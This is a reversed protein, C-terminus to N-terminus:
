LLGRLFTKDEDRNNLQLYIGGELAFMNLHRVPVEMWMQRIASGPDGRPGQVGDRSIHMYVFFCTSVCASM